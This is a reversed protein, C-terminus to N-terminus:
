GAVKCGVCISLLLFNVNRGEICLIGAQAKGITSPSFWLLIIQMIFIYIGRAPLLPTLPKERSIGVLGDQRELILISSQLVALSNSLDQFGELL